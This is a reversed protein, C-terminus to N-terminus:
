EWGALRLSEMVHEVEAEGPNGRMRVIIHRWDDLAPGPYNPMERKATQLTKQRVLTAEIRRGLRGLTALMILSAEVPPSTM